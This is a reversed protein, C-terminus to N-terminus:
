GEGKLWAWLNFSKKDGVQGDGKGITELRGSLRSAEKEADLRAARESQLENELRQLRAEYGQLQEKYPGVIAQLLELPLVANSGMREGDTGGPKDQGPQHFTELREGNDLALIIQDSTALSDRLSKITRFVAIDDDTFQRQIGREPTAGPSLYAQYERAWLRVTSPSVGAATATQKVTYAM